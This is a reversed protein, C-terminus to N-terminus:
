TVIDIFNVNAIFINKLNEDVRFVMIIQGFNFIRSCMFLSILCSKLIQLIYEMETLNILTVYVHIVTEFIM